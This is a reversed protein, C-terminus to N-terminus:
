QQILELTSQRVSGREKMGCTGQLLWASSVLHGCGNFVLENSRKDLSRPM